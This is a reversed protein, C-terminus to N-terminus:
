TPSQLCIGVYSCFKYYNKEFLRFMMHINMVGLFIGFIGYLFIMVLACLWGNPEVLAYVTKSVGLCNTILVGVWEYSEHM